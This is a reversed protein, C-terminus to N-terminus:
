RHKARDVYICLCFRTCPVSCHVPFVPRQHRRLRARHYEPTCIGWGAAPTCRPWCIYIYIYALSIMGCLTYLTDQARIQRSCLTLYEDWQVFPLSCSDIDVQVSWESMLRYRRGRISVFIRAALVGLVAFWTKLVFASHFIHDCNLATNRVHCLLPDRRVLYWILAPSLSWAARNWLLLLLAFSTNNSRSSFRPAVNPTALSTCGKMSVIIGPVLLPWSIYKTINSQAGLVM